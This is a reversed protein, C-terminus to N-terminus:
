AAVVNCQQPIAWRYHTYTPDVSSAWGADASRVVGGALNTPGLTLASSTYQEGYRLKQQGITGAPAGSLTGTVTATGNYTLGTIQLFSGNDVWEFGDRAFSTNLNSGVNSWSSTGGGGVIDRQVGESFTITFTSGSLTVSTISPAHETTGNARLYGIWEGRLVQGLDLSHVRDTATPYQYVPGADVGGTIDRAIRRIAEKIARDNDGLNGTSANQQAPYTYYLPAVYAPDAVGQKACLQLMRGYDICLTYYDAETTAAAGNAEGHAMFFFPKPNKGAARAMDCFRHVMAYVNARMGAQSLAQLTRAGVAVSCLYARTFTAGELAAAQGLKTAVGVAPSQGTGEALTVASAVSTWNTCNENNTTFYDFESVAVADVPMYASSWSSTLVRTGRATNLSQGTLIGVLADGGAPESGGGGGARLRGFPLLVDDVMPQLIPRLM